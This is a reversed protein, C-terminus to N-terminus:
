SCYVRKRRRLSIDKLHANIVTKGGAFVKIEGEETAIKKMTTATIPTGRLRKAVEGLKKYEVGEPCLREILKKIESM